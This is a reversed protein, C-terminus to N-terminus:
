LRKHKLSQILNPQLNDTKPFQIKVWIQSHQLLSATIWTAHIGKLSVSIQGLSSTYICVPMLTVVPTALQDAPREEEDCQHQGLSPCPVMFAPMTINTWPFFHIYLSAYPDSRPNGIPKCTERRWKKWTIWCFPLTGYFSANTYGCSNGIPKSTEERWLESMTWYFPLTGYFSANINGWSNDTSKSAKRKM